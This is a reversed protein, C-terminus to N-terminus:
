AAKELQSLKAAIEAPLSLPMFFEKPCVTAEGEEDRLWVGHRTIEIEYLKGPILLEEDDTEVCVAWTKVPAPIQSRDVEFVFERAPQKEGRMIEGAEILSQKLSEFNERNM